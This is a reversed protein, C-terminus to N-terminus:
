QPYEEFHIQMHAKMSGLQSFTRSCLRCMFPREGTHTRYHRMTVQKYVSSYSCLPCQYRRAESPPRTACRGPVCNQSWHVSADETSVDFERCLSLPWFRDRIAVAFRLCDWVSSFTSRLVRWPVVVATTLSSAQLEIAAIKEQPLKMFEMLPVLSEKVACLANGVSLLSVQRLIRVNDPLRQQLLLLNPVDAKLKQYVGNNVGIMVSANDTGIGVMRQLDIGFQALCMKVADVISQAKSDTLEVLSLFTSVVKGAKESYYVIVVGLLKTVSIDTSEDLILSYSGSGLDSLLEDVFHLSLVNKILASCKSRHLQLHMAGESDRFQNRCLEGLHDSALMASHACIFMALSGEATRSRDSKREVQLTTQRGSSFPAAASVHKKTAAHAVLDVHKASLETRCYRCRARRSDGPVELLWDKLKPDQLWDKRFKQAYKVPGM